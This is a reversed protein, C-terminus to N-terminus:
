VAKGRQALWRHIAKRGPETLSYVGPRCVVGDRDIVHIRTCPLHEKGLGLARVNAVLDPGNAAGAESDVAERSVSPRRLLLHILRLERPTCTGKFVPPKGTCNPTSPEEFFGTQAMAPAAPKKM